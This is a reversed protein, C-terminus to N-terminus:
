ADVQPREKSIMNRTPLILEGSDKHFDKRWGSAKVNQSIKIPQVQTTLPGLTCGILYLDYLENNKPFPIHDKM